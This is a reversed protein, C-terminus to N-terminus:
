KLGSVEFVTEYRQRTELQDTTRSIKGNGFNADYNLEIVDEAQIYDELSPPIFGFKGIYQCTGQSCVLTGHMALSRNVGAEQYSLWDARGRNRSAQKHVFFNVKASEDAIKGFIGIYGKLIHMGNKFASPVEPDSLPQNFVRLSGGAESIIREWLFEENPDTQEKFTNQSFISVETMSLFDAPFNKKLDRESVKPLVGIYVLSRIANYKQPEENLISAVRELMSKNPRMTRMNNARARTAVRILEQIYTNQRHKMDATVAAERQGPPVNRAIKGIICTRLVYDQAALDGESKLFYIFLSQGDSLQGPSILGPMGKTGLLATQLAEPELPASDIDIFVSTHHMVAPDCESKYFLDEAQAALPKLCVLLGLLCCFLSMTNLSCSIMSAVCKRMKILRKLPKVHLKTKSLLM